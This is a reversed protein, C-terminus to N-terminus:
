ELNRDTTPLIQIPTEMGIPKDDLALALRHHYALHLITPVGSPPHAPAVTQAAQTLTVPTSQLALNALIRNAASTSVELRAYRTLLKINELRHGKRIEEETAVYFDWDQKACFALAAQFKRRNEPTDVLDKPKCEVLANRRNRVVRFDPTYHYTKGNEQYEITLPQEYFAEVTPDFDQLIAFDRELYSEYWIMKGMKLSPFLGNLGHKRRTVKRVGM